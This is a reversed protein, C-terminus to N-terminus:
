KTGIYIYAVGWMLKLSEVKTFGATRMMDEFTNHSPFEDVSGPLYDYAQRDRSIWGGVVPLIHHFYFRYMSAFLPVDDPRSFEMIFCKGGAKLVRCMESLGQPLDGFNRVGFSATVADFEGGEFPLQEADGVVLSIQEALGKQEVKRTAYRVMEESLDLGVVKCGNCKRAVNIAVDATGTAVDLVREPAHQSLRRVMRRRWVRDFNLSLLHNLFDYSPAIRNFMERIESKKSDQTNYPKM